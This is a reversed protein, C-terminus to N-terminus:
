SASYSVRLPLGFFAAYQKAASAILAKDAKSVSVVLRFELHLEKPKVQRRFSGIVHGDKVVVYNLWANGLLKVLSQAHPPFVPTYDSYAIVYEDYVSLLMLKPIHAAEKAGEGFWYETGNITESALNKALQVGQKADTNTLGSWWAFDKATAPGHSKFYRQALLALSEDKGLRKAHPARESLLAYTFQKGKLPGSCIVGDLEAQMMVHGLRQGSASVGKAALAQALEQRTLFNGGALAAGIIHNSRDFFPRDLELKRNYYAMAQSIRPATLEVMWLIDEPTVFHWTPRMVHTRLIQGSNFLEDLQANTTSGLRQALAWKAAAYEQSQVAGLHAVVQQATKLPNGALHQNHLRAAIIDM